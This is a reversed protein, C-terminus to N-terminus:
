QLLMAALILFWSKLSAVITVDLRLSNLSNLFLQGTVLIITM